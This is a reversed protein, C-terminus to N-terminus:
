KTIDSIHSISRAETRVPFLIANKEINKTVVGGAGIVANEGIAISQIVVANAGVHVNRGIKVGGCIVAGPSIHVNEAINCDHEIIAGSNVITNAGVEAKTNIIAGAIVQVGEELFAGPSVTASPHILVPFHFGKEKYKKFLFCRAESNGPIRGIGNLLNIEDPKISDLIAEDGLSKIGNEWVTNKPLKLDVLGIIEINNLLAIESIVKAHGGAGILIAKKSM